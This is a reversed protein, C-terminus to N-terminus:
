GFVKAKRMREIEEESYGAKRLIEETNAGSEVGIHRIEPPTRSFKFPSGVQRQTSGDPKPVEVIM